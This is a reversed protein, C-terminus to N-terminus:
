ATGGPRKKLSVTVLVILFLVGFTCVIAAGTPLDMTASCFLGAISAVIGLFWGLAMQMRLKATLLMACGAPIVLYSFILLVGAIEVSATVVLGLSCYFLFDWWKLQSGSLGAKEPDGSIALFRKRFVFHFLGVVGCFLACRVIDHWQVFLINGVLM